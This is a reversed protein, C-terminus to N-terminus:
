RMKEVSATRSTRLYESGLACCTSKFFLGFACSWTRIISKRDWRLKYMENKARNKRMYTGTAYYLM